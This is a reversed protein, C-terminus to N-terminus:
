LKQGFVWVLPQATLFAGRLHLRVGDEAGDVEFAQFGAHQFGREDRIYTEWPCFAQILAPSRLSARIFYIKTTESM